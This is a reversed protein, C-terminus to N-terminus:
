RKRLRIAEAAGTSLASALCCPIILVKSLISYTNLAQNESFDCFEETLNALFAAMKIEAEDTMSYM